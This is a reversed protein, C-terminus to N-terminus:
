HPHRHDDIVILVLCVLGVALAGLLLYGYAGYAALGNM